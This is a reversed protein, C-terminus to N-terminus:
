PSSPTLRLASEMRRLVRFIVPTLVGHYLSAPLVRGFLWSAWAVESGLMSLLLLSALGEALTLAAVALATFLPNQEYILVGAVNALAATVLFSIGYVGLVGHSFSDLALGSLAAYLYLGPHLWRMGFLAVTILPLNPHVGFLSLGPMVTVQLWFAITGILAAFLPKM